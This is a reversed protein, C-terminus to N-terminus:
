GTVAFCDHVAKRTSDGRIDRNSDSFRRFCRAMLARLKAEWDPLLGSTITM